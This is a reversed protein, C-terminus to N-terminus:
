NLTAVFSTPHDWFIQPYEQVVNTTTEETSSDEEPSSTDEESESVLDFTVDGNLCVTASVANDPVEVSVTESDALEVWLFQGVIDTRVEGTPDPSREVIWPSNELHEITVTQCDQALAPVSMMSLALLTAILRKM